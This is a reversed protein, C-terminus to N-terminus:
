SKPEFFIAWSFYNYFVWFYFVVVFVVYKWHKSLLMSYCYSCYINLLVIFVIFYYIIFLAIMKDTGFFVLSAKTVAFIRMFYFKKKKLLKKLIIVSTERIQSAITAIELSVPPQSNGFRTYIIVLEALILRNKM